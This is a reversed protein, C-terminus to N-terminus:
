SAMNFGIWTILLDLVNQETPKNKISNIILQISLSEISGMVASMFSWHVVRWNLKVKLSHRMADCCLFDESELSWADHDCVANLV